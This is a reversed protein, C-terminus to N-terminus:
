SSFVIVRSRNPKMPISLRHKQPEMPTRQFLGSGTPYIKGSLVIRVWFIGGGGGFGDFCYVGGAGVGGFGGPSSSTWNCCLFDFLIALGITDIISLHHLGFLALVFLSAEEDTGSSLYITNNSHGELGAITAFILLPTNDVDGIDVELELVLVVVLADCEM